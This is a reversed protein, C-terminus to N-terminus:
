APSLGVGYADLIEWFWGEDLNIRREAEVIGSQARDFIAYCLESDDHRASYAIGDAMCPHGHLAQSWTQAASYPLGGHTVEATAGLPALGTGALRIFTLDRTATIMVYAKRALLDSPIQQRGPQRLFTEAFAGNPSGATYLVSYAGDPANLRGGQGPDFYIPERGINFFRHMVTGATVTLLRPTRTHLNPPPLPPM